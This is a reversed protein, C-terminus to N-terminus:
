VLQGRVDFSIDPLQLGAAGSKTVKIQLCNSAPVVANAATITFAAPTNSTTNGLGGAVNTFAQAIVTDAGGNGNNYVLQFTALNTNTETWGVQPTLRFATVKFRCPTSPDLTHVHTVNGAITNPAALVNDAALYINSDRMQAARHKVLFANKVLNASASDRDAAFFSDILDILKQGTDTSM